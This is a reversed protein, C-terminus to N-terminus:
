LRHHRHRERHPGTDFLVAMIGLTTCGKQSPLVQPDSPVPRGVFSWTVLGHSTDHEAVCAACPGGMILLNKKVRQWILGGHGVGKGLEELGGADAVDLHGVADDHGRQGTAAGVLGSAVDRAARHVDLVVALAAIRAQDDALAGLHDGDVRDPSGGGGARLEVQLERGAVLASGAGYGTMSRLGATLERPM